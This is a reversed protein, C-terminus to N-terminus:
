TNLIPLTCVTFYAVYSVALTLTIEIVTDNFIFGLWLVSALGFAIGFGVRSLLFLVSWVVEWQCIVLILHLYVYAGLSVEVLFKIVAGWNFTWGTVMRLLLQYVVIATRFPFSLNHLHHILLINNSFSAFNFPLLYSVTWSIGSIGQGGALSIVDPRKLLEVLLFNGM